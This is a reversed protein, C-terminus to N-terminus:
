ISLDKSKGNVKITTKKRVAERIESKTRNITRNTNSRIVNRARRKAEAEARDAISQQLNMINKQNRNDQFNQFVQNGIFALIALIVGGIIMWINREKDKEAQEQQAAMISDNRAQIEEAERKAKAEAEEQAAIQAASAKEELATKTSDYMQLVEAIKSSLGADTIERKQNRIFNIEVQLSESFPLKDAEYLLEKALKISEMVKLTTTNDAEVETTSTVIQQTIQSSSQQRTTSDSASLRIKMGKCESFLEYEGKKSHYALYIPITIESSDKVIFKLTPSEQVVFFGESSHEYTVNSPVTFADPVIKKISVNNSYGGIRDFFMVAVKSRDKYQEGNIQSLKKQPNNNFRIQPNNNFRITYSDESRSLEYTIVIRDGDTTVLTDKVTKAHVCLCNLFITALFVLTFGLIKLKAM